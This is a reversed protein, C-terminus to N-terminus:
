RLMYKIDSALTPYSWLGNALESAKVHRRMALAFLNITEAAHNRVLHAGLIEDTEPDVLIKYAAHREGVRKSSAWHTPDGQRVQLNVIGKRAEAETLGVAALNPLTFVVSPVISYDIVSLNGHLINRAATKGEEDAVPALMYPTDACDGIAYVRPNSVSQLYENVAVGRPSHKVNSREDSLATLNPARGTAEIILDAEYYTGTSGRIRLGHDSPSVETPEEDLVIRIGESASAELLVRVMDEDFAKLPQKSRHLITVAEAGARIAVHAFEFSIYGGGVFVIRRPLEPLNLFHESDHLLKAGPIDSRRPRAGTALVIHDARLCRGGVAIQNEGTLVAHDRFTAVGAKQWDALEAESRGELFEGKLAQLAAWDTRAASAIGRGVLHRTMAVSEANSVLYKKPQCGRLACTGGYPQEDVIAVQRGAEHLATVAYYAATGSGIVVVDYSDSSM